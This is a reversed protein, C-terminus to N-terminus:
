NVVWTDKASSSLLEAVPYNKFDAKLLDVLIQKKKEGIVGFIRNKANNLIPLTMTIRDMNKSKVHINEVFRNTKKAFDYEPFLSAIHGDEGMGMFILDFQPLGNKNDIVTKIEREYKAAAEEPSLWGEIRHYNIESYYKLWNDFCLKFNNEKDSIPVCREDLFFVHIKSWDITNQHKRHRFIKYVPLPTSGGSVAMFCKSRKDIIQSIISIMKQSIIIGFEVLSETYIIDGTIM